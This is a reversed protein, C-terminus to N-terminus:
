PADWSASGMAYGEASSASQWVNPSVSNSRAIVTIHAPASSSPFKGDTGVNPRASAASGPACQLASSGLAGNRRHCRTSSPAPPEGLAGIVVRGSRMSSFIRVVQRTQRVDVIPEGTKDGVDLDLQVDDRRMPFDGSADRGCPRWAVIRRRLGDHRQV